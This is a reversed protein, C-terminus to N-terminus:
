LQFQKKDLNACFKLFNEFAHSPFGLYTGKESPQGRSINVDEIDLLGSIKTNSYEIGGAISLPSIKSDKMIEFIQDIITDVKQSNDGIKYILRPKLYISASTINPFSFDLSQKENPLRISFGTNVALFRQMYGFNNLSDPLNYPDFGSDSISELFDKNGLFIHKFLLHISNRAEDIDKPKNLFKASYSVRHKDQDRKFYLPMTDVAVVLADKSFDNHSLAYDLKAQAIRRPVEEGYHDYYNLIKGERLVKQRANEEVNNPISIPYVDNFGLTHLSQIRYPSNSIIYVPLSYWNQLKENAETYSINGINEKPSIM